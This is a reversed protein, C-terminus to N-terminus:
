NGQGHIEVASFRNNPDDPKMSQTIEVRNGGKKTYQVYLSDEYRRPDNRLAESDDKMRLVQCIRNVRQLDDTFKRQAWLPQFSDNLKDLNDREIEVSPPPNDPESELLSPTSEIYTFDDEVGRSHYVATDPRTPIVEFMEDEDGVGYGADLVGGKYLASSASGSSQVSGIQQVLDFYVSYWGDRGLFDPEFRGDRLFQKIQIEPPRDLSSAQAYMTDFQPDVYDEQRIIRGRFRTSTSPKQQSANALTMHAFNGAHTLTLSSYKELEPPLHSMIEQLKGIVGCVSSDEGSRRLESVDPETTSVIIEDNVWSGEPRSFAATAQAEAESKPAQTYSGEFYSDLTHHNNNSDGRSRLPFTMHTNM